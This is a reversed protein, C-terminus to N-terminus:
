FKDKKSHTTGCPHWSLFHMFVEALPCGGHGEWLKLDRPVVNILLGIQLHWINTDECSILNLTWCRFVPMPCPNLLPHLSCTQCCANFICSTQPPTSKWRTASIFCFRGASITNLRSECTYLMMASGRQLVVDFMSHFGCCVCMLEFILNM